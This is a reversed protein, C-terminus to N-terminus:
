VGDVSGNAIQKSALREMLDKAALKDGALYLVNAALATVYSNSNTQADKKIWAIEDKLSDAPQGCELLAWVIYANSCAPSEAWGSHRRNQSFGGKGDRQRMLWARTIDLMDQDVERVKKMDNFHMLGF